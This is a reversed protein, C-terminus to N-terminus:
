ACTTFHPTQAQVTHDTSTHWSVVLTQWGEYSTASLTWSTSVGLSWPSLGSTVTQLPGVGGDSRQWQYQVTTGPPINSYISATFNFTYPACHSTPATVVDDIVVGSCEATFTKNATAIDVPSTVHLREWATTTEGFQWGTNVTQVQAGTGAFHITPGAFTDGTSREWQYTVDVPGRDVSVTAAFTANVGCLGSHFGPASLISVVTIPSVTVHISTGGGGDTAIATGSGGDTPALTAGV